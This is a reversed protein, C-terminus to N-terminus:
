NIPPLTSPPPPNLPSSVVLRTINTLLEPLMWASTRTNRAFDDHKSHSRRKVGNENALNCFNKNATSKIMLDLSMSMLVPKSMSRGPLHYIHMHTHIVLTTFVELGSCILTGPPSPPQNTCLIISLNPIKIFPHHTAPFFPAFALNAKLVHSSLAAFRECLRSPLNFNAMDTGHTTAMDCCLAHGSFFIWFTLQLRM